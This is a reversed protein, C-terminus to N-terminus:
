EPTPLPLLRHQQRQKVETVAYRQGIRVKAIGANGCPARECGAQVLSQVAKQSGFRQKQEILQGTVPRRMMAAFLDAQTEILHAIWAAADPQGAAPRGSITHISM